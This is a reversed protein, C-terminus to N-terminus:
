DTREFRLNHIIREGDSIELTWGDYQESEDHMLDQIVRRGFEFSEADDRLETAGLKESRTGDHRVTTFHYAPM